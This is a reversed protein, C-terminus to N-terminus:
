WLQLNREAAPPAVVRLLNCVRLVRQRVHEAAGLAHGLQAQRHQHLLVRLLLKQDVKAELNKHKKSLIKISTKSIM